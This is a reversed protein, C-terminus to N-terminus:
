CLHRFFAHTEDLKIPIFCIPILPVNLHKSKGLGSSELHHVRLVVVWTRVILMFNLCVLFDLCDVLNVLQVDHAAGSNDESKYILCFRFHQDITICVHCPLVEFRPIGGMIM